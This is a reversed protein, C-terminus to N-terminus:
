GRLLLKEMRKITIFKSSRPIKSSVRVKAITDEFINVDLSEVIDSSSATKVLNRAFAITSLGAMEIDAKVEKKEYRTWGM